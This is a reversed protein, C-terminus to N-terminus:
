CWRSTKRWKMWVVSKSLTFEDNISNRPFFTPSMIMPIASLCYLNIWKKRIKYSSVIWWDYFGCCTRGWRQCVPHKVTSLLRCDWGEESKSSGRQLVIESLEELASLSSTLNHLPQKYLELGSVGPVWGGSLVKMQFYVHFCPRDGKVSRCLGVALSTWRRYDTFLYNIIQFFFTGM